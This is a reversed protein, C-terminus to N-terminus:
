LLEFIFKNLKDTRNTVEKYENSKAIRYTGPALCQVYEYEYDHSDDVQNDNVMQISVRVDYIPQNSENSVIIIESYVDGIDRAFYNFNRELWCCVKSAQKKSDIKRDRYMQYALAFLAVITAFSTLIQLFM